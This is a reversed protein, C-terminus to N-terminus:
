TRHRRADPVFRRPPLTDHPTAEGGASRAAVVRGAVPGTHQSPKSALLIQRRRSSIIRRHIHPCRGKANDVYGGAPEATNAASGGIQVKFKGLLAHLLHPRDNDMAVTGADV